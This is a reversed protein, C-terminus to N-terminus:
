IACSKCQTANSKEQMRLRLSCCTSRCIGFGPQKKHRCCIVDASVAICQFWRLNGATSTAIMSQQLKVTQFQEKSSVLVNIERFSEWRRRQVYNCPQRRHRQWEQQGAYGMQHPSRAARVPFLRDRENSIHAAPFPAVAGQRGTLITVADKETQCTTRYTGM